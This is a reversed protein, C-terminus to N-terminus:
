KGWRKRHMAVLKDVLVKGRTPPEPLLSLREARLRAREERLAVIQKAEDLKQKEM